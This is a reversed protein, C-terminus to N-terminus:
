GAKREVLEDITINLARALKDLTELSPSCKGTEFRAITVRSVGSLDSLRAQTLGREKRIEAVKINEGGNQFIM